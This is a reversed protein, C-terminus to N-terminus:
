AEQSRHENSLQRIYRKMFDDIVPEEIESSMCRISQVAIFLISLTPNRHQLTM